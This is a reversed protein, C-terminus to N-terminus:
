DNGTLKDTYKDIAEVFKRYDKDKQDIFLDYHDKNEPTQGVVFKARTMALISEVAANYRYNFDILMDFEMKAFDNIQVMNPKGYWNLNSNCFYDATLQPLCYFPVEKENIYGMLRVNRDNSQLQTFLSFINKYSDEDTIECVMGISKAQKM